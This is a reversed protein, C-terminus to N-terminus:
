VGLCIGFVHGIKDAIVLAVPGAAALWLLLRRFKMKTQAKM